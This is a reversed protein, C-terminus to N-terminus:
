LLPLNPSSIETGKSADSFSPVDTGMRIMIDEWGGTSNGAQDHQTVYADYLKPRAKVEEKKFERRSFPRRNSGSFNAFVGTSGATSTASPNIQARRTSSHFSSSQTSSLSTLGAGATSM